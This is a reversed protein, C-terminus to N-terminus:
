TINGNSPKLARHVKKLSHIYKLGSGIQSMLEHMKDKLMSGPSFQFIGMDQGFTTTRHKSLINRLHEIDKRLQESDESTSNVLMRSSIMDGYRTWERSERELAADKVLIDSIVKRFGGLFDGGEDKLCIDAKNCGGVLEPAHFVATGVSFHSDLNTAGTGQGTIRLFDALKWL